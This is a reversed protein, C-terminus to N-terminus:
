QIAGVVAPAVPASAGPLTGIGLPNSGGTAGAYGVVPPAVPAPNYITAGNGQFINGSASGSLLGPQGPQAYPPLPLIRPMRSGYIGPRMARSHHKGGLLAIGLGLCAIIPLLDGSFLSNNKHVPALPAQVVVPQVTNTPIPQPPLTSGSPAVCAGLPCNLGAETLQEELIPCFGSNICQDDPINQKRCLLLRQAIMGQAAFDVSTSGPYYKSLCDCQSALDAASPFGDAFAYPLASSQVFFLISFALRNFM